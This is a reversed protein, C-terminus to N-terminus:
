LSIPNHFITNIIAFNQSCVSEKTVVEQTIYIIASKIPLNFLHAIGNIRDNYYLIQDQNCDDIIVLQKKKVFLSKVVKDTAIQQLATTNTRLVRSHSKAILNAITSKGTGKKGTIIIPTPM